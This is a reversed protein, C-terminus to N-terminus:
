TKEKEELLKAIWDQTRKHAHVVVAADASSADEIAKLMM